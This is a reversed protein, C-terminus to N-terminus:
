EVDHVVYEDNSILDYWDKLNNIFKVLMKDTKMGFKGWFSNLILKMVSRLGSNFKINNKDLYIGEKEYYENIYNDKDSESQIHDPYGSAEQKYKLFM